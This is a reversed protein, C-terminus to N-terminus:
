SRGFDGFPPDWDQLISVAESQVADDKDNAARNLSAIIEPTPSAIKALTRLAVWRVLRDEDNLASLVLPALPAASHGFRGLNSIACDRLHWGQAQILISFPGLLRRKSELLVYERMPSELLECIQNLLRRYTVPALNRRYFQPNGGDVDFVLDFILPLEEVPLAKTRYLAEAAELRVIWDGQRILDQLAAVAAVGFRGLAVISVDRMAASEDELLVRALHPIAVAARPGINALALAAGRRSELHEDSLMRILTNVDIPPIIPQEDNVTATSLDPEIGHRRMLSQLMLEVVEVSEERAVSALASRVYENDAILKLTPVLPSLAPVLKAITEAAETRLDVLGGDDDSSGLTGRDLIQVVDGLAAEAGPGISQLVQLAHSRYLWYDNGLQRRLEPVAASADRGIRWLLESSAISEHFEGELGGVIESVVRANRFLEWDLRLFHLTRREDREITAAVHALAVPNSRALDIIEHCVEPWEHHLSELPAGNFLVREKCTYLPQEQLKRFLVTLEADIDNVADSKEITEISSAANERVTEDADQVSSILSPLLTPTKPQYWHALMSTVLRRVEVDFHQKGMEIATEPSDFWFFSEMRRDPAFIRGRDLLSNWCDDHKFSNLIEPISELPAWGIQSLAKVARYRVSDRESSLQQVLQIAAPRGLSALSRIATKDDLDDSLLCNVLTGAADPEPRILLLAQISASRITADRDSLLQLLPPIAGAAPPGIHGLAQVAALRDHSETVESLCETLLALPKESLDGALVLAEAAHIRLSPQPNSEAIQRLQPVLESSEPLFYYHTSNQVAALLEIPDHSGLAHGIMKFDHTMRDSHGKEDM